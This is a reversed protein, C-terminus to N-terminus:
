NNDDVWYDNKNILYTLLDRLYEYHSKHMFDKGMAIKFDKIDDWLIDAPHMGDEEILKITEEIQTCGLYVVCENTENEM